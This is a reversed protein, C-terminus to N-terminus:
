MQTGKKKCHHKPANTFNRLAVILLRGTRKDTHFMEARVPLIKMLNPIQTNTSFRNLFNLNKQFRVLIVLVKVHLGNCMNSWIENLEEYLSFHWGFTTSFILAYMKHEIVGGGGSFRATLSIFLTFLYKVAPCAVIFIHRMRMVHRIGLAVFACESYTISVAKASCCHNCSRM